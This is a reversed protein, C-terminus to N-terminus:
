REYLASILFPLSILVGASFVITTCIYLLKKQKYWCEFAHPDQRKDIHTECFHTLADGSYLLYILKNISIAAGILFLFFITAPLFEMMNKRKIKKKWFITLHKRFASSKNARLFLSFNTQM